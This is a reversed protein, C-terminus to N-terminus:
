PIHYRRPDDSTERKFYMSIKKVAIGEKLHNLEQENMLEHMQKFAASYPNVERIYTDM